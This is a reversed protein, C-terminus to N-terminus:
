FAGELEFMGEETQYYCKELLDLGKRLPRAMERYVSYPHNVQDSVEYKQGQFIWCSDYTNSPPNDGNYCRDTYEWENLCEIIKGANAESIEINEDYETGDLCNEIYEITVSDEHRLLAELVSKAQETAGVKLCMALLNRFSEKCNARMYYDAAKQLDEGYYTLGNGYLYGMNILVATNDKFEENQYISLAEDYKGQCMFTNALVLKDVVGQDYYAYSNYTNNQNGIEVTGGNFEVNNLQIGDGGEVSVDNVYTSDNISSDAEVHVNNNMTVWFINGIGFFCFLTFLGIIMAYKHIYHSNDSNAKKSAVFSYITIIDGAVGLLTIIISAKIGM